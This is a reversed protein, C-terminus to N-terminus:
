PYTKGNLRALEAEIANRHLKMTVLSERLTQLLGRADRTNHGDRDLRAIREEQEYILKQATGIHRNAESLHETETRIGAATDVLCVKAM